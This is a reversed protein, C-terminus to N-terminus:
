PAPPAPTEAAAVDEVQAVDGTLHALADTVPSLDVPGGANATVFAQLISIATELRGSLAAIQDAEAQVAAQTASQETMLDDVKQEIRALVALIATQGGLIVRQGALVESLDVDITLAAV